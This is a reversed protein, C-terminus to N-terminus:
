KKEEKADSKASAAQSKNQTKLDSNEKVKGGLAYYAAAIPIVPVKLVDHIAYAPARIAVGTSSFAVIVPSFVTRMVKELTGENTGLYRYTILNDVVGGDSIEFHFWKSASGHALKYYDNFSHHEHAVWRTGSFSKSTWDGTEINSVPMNRAPYTSWGVPQWILEPLRFHGYLVPRDEQIVSYYKGLMEGMFRPPSDVDVSNVFGARGIYWDGFSEYQSFQFISCGSLFIALLSLATFVAAKHM